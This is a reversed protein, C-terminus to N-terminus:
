GRPLTVTTTTITRGAIVVRRRSISMSARRLLLSAIPILHPQQARM